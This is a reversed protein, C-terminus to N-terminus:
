AGSLARDLADAADRRLAPALHAYTDATLSIQSHGLVDQITKMPVGEVLLLSACAHRLDHFRQRPLDLRVLRRQFLRTLNPGDVPTGLETTFVLGFADPWGGLALRAEGQTARQRRLAAVAAVPLTVARRSTASKPEVLTWVKDVRQLATRVTLVGHDLDVDKWTLGLLEGQRMGTFLAVAFVPGYWEDSTGNLLRQAQSATLPQIQSKIQRPPDALAAVNREVYGWRQAQALASRLIARIQQVTRPSLGTKTCGNLFTQVDQPTLAALTIYGLAPAIHKRIYSEYGKLTSPRLRPRAVDDLWATLFLDLTQREGKLDIGKKAKGLAEDMKARVDARSKGYVSPRKGNPLTFKAEWRGDARLRLTGEHHGRHQDKHILKAM